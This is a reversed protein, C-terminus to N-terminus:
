KVLKISIRGFTDALMDPINTNEISLSELIKTQIDDKMKQIKRELIKGILKLKQGYVHYIYFNQNTKLYESFKELEGSFNNLKICQDRLSSSEVMDKNTETLSQECHNKVTQKLDNKRQLTKEKLELIQSNLFKIPDRSVSEYFDVRKKMESIMKRLKPILIEKKYSLDFKEEFLHDKGCVCCTFLQNNDVHDFHHKCIISACELKFPESNFEEHCYACVLDKSQDFM